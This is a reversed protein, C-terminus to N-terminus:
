SVEWIGSFCLGEKLLVLLSACRERLDLEHM